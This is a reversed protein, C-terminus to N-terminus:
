ASERVILEGPLLVQPAGGAPPTGTGAVWAFATRALEAVPQRITTLAPNLADALPLDDFGTVAIGGPVAVGGEQLARLVGIAIADGAALLAQPRGGGRRLLDRTAQLGAATASEPRAVQWEPRSECGLVAAQEAFVRLRERHAPLGDAIFGVRRIGRRSLHGLLAAIGHASDVAVTAHTAGPSTGIRAVPLGRALFGELWDERGGSGVIILGSIGHKALPRLADPDERRQELGALVLTHDERRALRQLAGILAGLFPDEFDYVVVGLTRSSV